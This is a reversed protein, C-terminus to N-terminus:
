CGAASWLLACTDFLVCLRRNRKTCANKQTTQKRSDRAGRSAGRRRVAGDQSGIWYCCCRYRRRRFVANKLWKNIYDIMKGLCARSLCLSFEFFSAIKRVARGHLADGLCLPELWNLIDLAATPGSSFRRV